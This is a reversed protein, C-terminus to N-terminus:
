GGEGLEGGDGGAVEEACVDLVAGGEADAGFGGDFGAGEDGVGHDQAEDEGLEFVAAPEEGPARRRVREVRAGRRPPFIAREDRPIHQIRRRQQRTKRLRPRAILRTRRKNQIPERTRRLLRHLQIIQHRNIHDHVKVRRETHNHVPDRAAPHVRRRPPAVIGREVGGPHRTAVIDRALLQRLARIVILPNPQLPQLLKLLRALRQQLM